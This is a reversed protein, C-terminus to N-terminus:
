PRACPPRREVGGRSRPLDLTSWRVGARARAGRGGGSGKLAAQKYHLLQLFLRWSTDLLCHAALYGVGLHVQAAPRERMGRGAQCMPPLAPIEFNGPTGPGGGAEEEEEEEEEKDEEKEEQSPHPSPPPM